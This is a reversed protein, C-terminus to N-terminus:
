GCAQRRHDPNMAIHATDVQRRQLVLIHMRHDIVDHVIALALCVFFMQFDIKRKFDRAQRSEAHIGEVLIAASGGHQPGNRRCDQRQFLEVCRADKGLQRQLRAAQHQDGARGTGAFRGRQRCHDIVDIFIFVRMDQGDFVRDFEDMLRVLAQDVLAFDPRVGM